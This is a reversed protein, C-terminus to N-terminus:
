LSIPSKSKNYYKQDKIDSTVAGPSSACSNTNNEIRPSNNDSENLSHAIFQNNQYGNNYSENNYTNCSLKEDNSIKPSTTKMNSSRISFEFIDFPISSSSKTIIVNASENIDENDDM